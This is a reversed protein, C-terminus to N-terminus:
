LIKQVELRIKNNIYAIPKNGNIRLHPQSELINKLCDRYNKLYGIEADDYGRAVVRKYAINPSTDLWILLEPIGGLLSVEKAIETTNCGRANGGALRCFATRASVVVIGNEVYPVVDFIVERLLDFSLSVMYCDEGLYKRGSEIGKKLAIISSMQSVFDRKGERLINPIKRKNLWGCLLAAQTSKGSGDIGTFGIHIGKKSGVTM